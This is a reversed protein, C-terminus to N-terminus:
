EVIHPQYGLLRHPEGAAGDELWRIPTEEERNPNVWAICRLDTVTLAANNFHLRAKEDISAVSNGTAFAAEILPMDKALIAEINEDNQCGAVRARIDERHATCLITRQKRAMMGLRWTRAFSSQHANWEESIEPTMVLRHGNERVAILFDRCNKSTPYPANEKGSARAVCADIVLEVSRRRPM